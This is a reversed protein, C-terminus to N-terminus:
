VISSVSPPPAEAYMACLRQAGRWIEVSHHDPHAKLLVVAKDIAETVTRLELDNRAKIQNDRDRFYCRYSPM